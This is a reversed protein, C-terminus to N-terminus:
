RFFIMGIAYLSLFLISMAAFFMGTVFTLRVRLRQEALSPYLAGYVLMLLFLWFLGMFFSIYIWLDM